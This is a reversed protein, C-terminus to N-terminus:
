GPGPDHCSGAATCNTATTCSIGNLLSSDASTTLTVPQVSWQSGNWLGAAPSGISRVFNGGAAYCPGARACSVGLLDPTTGRPRAIKVVSWSKGNWQEALGSGVAMCSSEPRCSVANLSDSKAPSPTKQLQWKSGNWVEALAKFIDNTESPGVALCRAASPCSIGSLGSGAQGPPKPPRRIKWSSGNWVEALPVQKGGAQTDGVAICLSAKVCSVGLLLSGAQPEPVPQVTWGSPGRTESLLQSAGASLTGVAMCGNPSACSVATFEWAGAGGIDPTPKQLWGAFAATAPAVVLLGSALVAALASRGIRRRVPM